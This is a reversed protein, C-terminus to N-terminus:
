KCVLVHTGARRIVAETTTGMIEITAESRSHPGILILSAGLKDAEEVIAKGPKGKAITYSAEVGEAKLRETLELLRKAVTPGDEGEELVHLLVIRAGTRRAIESARCLVHDLYDDFDVAAVIPGEFPDGPARLEEEGDKSRTYPKSIFVPRDAVHVLEESTSGLLIRRIWGHGRSAVVIYDANLRRAIEAIKIAPEGVEPRIVEVEFGKSRLETAYVDLKRLAERRMDEQLKDVPYGSAVHELVELSVVHVLTLSRTGVRRLYPLWSVFLDSVKSLDLGVVAHTFSCNKPAM